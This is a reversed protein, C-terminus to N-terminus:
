TATYSSKMKGRITLSNCILPAERNEIEVWLIGRQAWKRDMTTEAVVSLLLREPTFYESGPGSIWSKFTTWKMSSACLRRSRVNYAEKSLRKDIIKSNRILSIWIRTLKSLSHYNQHGVLLALLISLNRLPTKRWSTIRFTSMNSLLTIIRQPWLRIYNIM